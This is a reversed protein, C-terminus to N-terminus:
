YETSKSWARPTKVILAYSRRAGASWSASLTAVGVFRLRALRGGDLDTVTVPRGIGFYGASVVDRQRVSFRFRFFRLAATRASYSQAAAFRRWWRRPQAM